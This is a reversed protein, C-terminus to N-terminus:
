ETSPSPKLAWIHGHRKSDKNSEYYADQAKGMEAAAWDIVPGVPIRGRYAFQNKPNTAEALPVGYQNRPEDVAARYAILLDVDDPTFEPERHVVTGM